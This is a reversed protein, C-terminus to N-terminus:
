FRRKVVVFLCGTDNCYYPKQLFQGKRLNAEKGSEHGSEHCKM